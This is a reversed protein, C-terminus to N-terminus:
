EIFELSYYTLTHTQGDDFAVRCISWGHSVVTGVQGEYYKCWPSSMLQTPEYAKILVRQGSREFIDAGSV